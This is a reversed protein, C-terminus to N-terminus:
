HCEGALTQEIATNRVRLNIAPISGASCKQGGRVRHRTHAKIRDRRKTGSSLMEHRNKCAVEDFYNRYSVLISPVNCKVHSKRATRGGKVGEFVMKEEGQKWSIGGDASALNNERM